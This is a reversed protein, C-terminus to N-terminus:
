KYLIRITAQKRLDALTDSIANLYALQQYQSTLGATIYQRVTTTTGPSLPDDLGLIKFDNHASVKLIHYGGNSEIVPSIKGVETDFATNFFTSGLAQKSADDDITLWGEIVGGVNKSATDQSYEQVAKEFTMTGYNIYRAVQELLAKNESNKKSADSGTAYPIFIHSLKVNEPNVFQAKNQRYFTTIDKEAPVSVTKAWDPNLKDVCATVLLQQRITEKLVDLGGSEAVFNQFEDDSLARGVQQELQLRWNDLYQTVLVDNISIKERIAAQRWLENDILNDLVALPTISTPDGGQQQALAKYQAIATNLSDMTIVANEVLNVTAAPQAIVTAFAIGGVCCFMAILVLCSVCSRKMM